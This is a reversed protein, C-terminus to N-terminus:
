FQETGSLFQPPPYLVPDENDRLAKLDRFPNHLVVKTWCFDEYRDDEPNPSFWPGRTSACFLTM